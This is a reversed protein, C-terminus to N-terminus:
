RSMVPQRDPSRIGAPILNEACTWHPEPAWEAKQIAPVHRPTANVVWRGRGGLNCFLLAIDCSGSQAEM